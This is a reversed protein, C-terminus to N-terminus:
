RSMASIRLLRHGLVNVDNRKSQTGLLSERGGRERERERERERRKVERERARERQVERKLLGQALEVEAVCTCLDFPLM